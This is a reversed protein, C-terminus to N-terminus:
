IRQKRLEGALIFGKGVAGWQVFSLVAGVLAVGLAQQALPIQQRIEPASHHPRLPRQQASSAVDTRPNRVTRCPGAGM